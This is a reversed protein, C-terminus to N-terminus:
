GMRFKELVEEDEDESEWKETVSEWDREGVGESGDVTETSWSKDEEKDEERKMKM